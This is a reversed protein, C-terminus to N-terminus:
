FLVEQRLRNNAIECYKPEIEIGIFDRGLEKAAVATTGSGLFPDLILDNPKSYDLLIRKFLGRPKQTPHSREGEKGLLGNYEYTIKKVSHREINTWLLECDGFSPMTNLKDWVIWHNGMPLYDAFHNGGFVIVKNGCRIIGNFHERSPRRSDWDDDYKRRHIPKGFGGFGEFGEFGKSMGIGYPPDTLVLDVAGDPIHKMVELCDGQIVKNIFDDPWRM